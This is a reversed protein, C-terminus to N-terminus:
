SATTIIQIQPNCRSDKQTNSRRINIFVIEDNQQTILHLRDVRVQGHGRDCHPAHFEQHYRNYLEYPKPTKRFGLLLRVKFHERFCGNLIRTQGLDRVAIKM